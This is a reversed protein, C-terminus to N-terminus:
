ALIFSDKNKSNPNKIAQYYSSNNEFRIKKGEFYAKSSEKLEDIAKVM